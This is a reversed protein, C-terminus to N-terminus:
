SGFLARIVGVGAIGIIGVITILIVDFPNQSTLILAICPILIPLVFIGEDNKM